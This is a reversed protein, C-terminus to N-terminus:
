KEHTEKTQKTVAVVFGGLSAGWGWAPVAEDPLGAARLLAAVRGGSEFEESPIEWLAIDAYAALLEVALALVKERHNM